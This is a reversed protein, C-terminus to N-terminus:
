GARLFAGPDPHMARRLIDEFQADTLPEAFRVGVVDGVQWRKECTTRIPVPDSWGNLLLYFARPADTAGSLRLCAGRVSVDRVTVNWTESMDALVVRGPSDITARPVERQNEFQTM